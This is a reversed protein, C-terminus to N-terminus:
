DLDTIRWAGTDFELRAHRASVSDDPVVVECEAARGITVVPALVSMQEGYRPGAQLALLALAGPAAGPSTHSM